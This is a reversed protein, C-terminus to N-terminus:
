ISSITHVYFITVALYIALQVNMIDASMPNCRRGMEDDFGQKTDSKSIQAKMFRNATQERIEKLDVPNNEPGVAQGRSKKKPEHQM